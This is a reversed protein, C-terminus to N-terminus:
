RADRVAAYIHEAIPQGAEVLTLMEQWFIQRNRVINLSDRVFADDVLTLARVYEQEQERFHRLIDRVDDATLGNWNIRLKRAM